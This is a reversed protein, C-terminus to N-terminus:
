FLEIALNQATRLTSSVWGPPYVVIKESALQNAMKRCTGIDRGSMKEILCRDRVKSYM